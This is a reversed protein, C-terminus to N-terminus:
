TKVVKEAHEVSDFVQKLHRVDTVRWREALPEDYRSEDESEAVSFKDVYELAM